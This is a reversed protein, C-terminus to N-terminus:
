TRSRACESCARPGTSHRSVSICAPYSFERWMDTVDDSIWEVFEVNLNWSLSKEESQITPVLITTHLIPRELILRGEGEKWCMLNDLVPNREPFRELEPSRNLRQSRRLTWSHSRVCATQHVFFRSNRSHCRSNLWPLKNWLYRPHVRHEERKRGFNNEGTTWREYTNGISKRRELNDLRQSRAWSRGLEPCRNLRQTRHVTWSYHRVCERQLGFLRSYRYRCKSHLWALM